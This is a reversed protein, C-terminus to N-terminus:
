INFIRRMSDSNSRQRSISMAAPSTCSISPTAAPQNQARAFALTQGTARGVSLSMESDPPPQDLGILHSYQSSSSSSSQVGRRSQSLPSPPAGALRRITTPSTTPGLPRQMVGLNSRAQPGPSGTIQNAPVSGITSARKRRGSRPSFQTPTDRAAALLRHCQDCTRVPESVGIGPITDTNNSCDACFILGCHRCHHRRKQISFGVNCYNCSTVDRGRQWECGGAIVPGPVISGEIFSDVGELGPNEQHQLTLVRELSQRSEAGKQLLTNSLEKFEQYTKEDMTDQCETQGCQASGVSDISQDSGGRRDALPHDQYMKFLTSMIDRYEKSNSGSQLSDSIGSIAVFLEQISATREGARSTEVDALTKELIKVKSKPLRQLKARIERLQNAYPALMSYGEVTDPNFSLGSLIALRPIAFMVQPDYDELQGKTIARSKLGKLVAESFMVTLEQRQEYENTSKCPAVARVYLNEFTTWATDFYRLVDRLKQPYDRPDRRAQARLVHNCTEFAECLEVAAPRLVETARERGELVRGDAILEAAFLLTEWFNLELEEQVESPFKLRYERSERPDNVDAFVCELACLVDSQCKHLKEINVVQEEETTSTELLRVTRKLRQTAHYFTTLPLSDDQEPPKYFLSELSARLYLGAREITSLPRNEPSAAMKNQYM